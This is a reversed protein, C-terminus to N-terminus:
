APPSPRYARLEAYQVFELYNGEPDTVLLMRVGPRVEVTGRSHVRAGARQLAAHTSDLDDVIFTVYAGGRREMACAPAPAASPPPDPQALKLRDGSPSELRVIRYGATALGTARGITAPVAVDSLLRLGLVERYFPLLRDLDAVALGVELPAVTRM